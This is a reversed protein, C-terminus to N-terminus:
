PKMRLALSENRLSQLDANEPAVPEGAAVQDERSLPAAATEVAVTAFRSFMSGWLNSLALPIVPVPTEELIRLM